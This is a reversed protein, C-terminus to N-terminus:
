NEHNSYDKNYIFILDLFSIFKYNKFNKFNLFKIFNNKNQSILDYNNKKLFNIFNNYNFMYAYNTMTSINVQKLVIDENKEESIYFPTHTFILYKIKKKLFFELTTKYENIYQVSSGFLAFDISTEIENLNKLVKINNLNKEQIIESIVKNCCPQDYYFYNWEYKKLYRNLYIYNDINNAGFDIIKVSKKTSSYISLLELIYSCTNFPKYFKDNLNNLINIQENKNFMIPHNQDPLKKLNTEVFFIKFLKFLKRKCFRPLKNYFESKFLINLYKYM